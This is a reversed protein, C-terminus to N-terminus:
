LTIVETAVREVFARDHSTFLVAGPFEALAAELAEM